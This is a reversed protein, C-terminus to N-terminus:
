PGVQRFGGGFGGQRGKLLDALLIMEPGYMQECKEQSDEASPPQESRWLEVAFTLFQRRLLNPGRRDAFAIKAIHDSSQSGHRRQRGDGHLRLYGPLKHRHPELFALDHLLAVEQRLDVWPWVLGGQIM